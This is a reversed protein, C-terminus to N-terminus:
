NRGNIAMQRIRSPASQRLPSKVIRGDADLTVAYPATEACWREREARTLLPRRASALQGDLEPFPYFM